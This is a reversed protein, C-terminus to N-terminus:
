VLAQLVRPPVADLLVRCAATLTAVTQSKREESPPLTEGTSLRAMQRSLHARVGAGVALRAVTTCLTETAHHMAAESASQAAAPTDTPRALALTAEPDTPPYHRALIAHITEDADPPPPPQTAPDKPRARRARKKPRPSADDDAHAPEPLGLNQRLLAAMAPPTAGADPVARPADDMDMADDDDDGGSSSQVEEDVHEDFDADEDVSSASSASSAGDAAAAPADDADPMALVGVNMPSAPTAPPLNEEWVFDVPRSFLSKVGLAAAVSGFVTRPDGAQEMAKALAADHHASSGAGFGFTFAPASM